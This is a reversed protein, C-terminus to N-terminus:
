KLSNNLEGDDLYDLMETYLMDIQKFLWEETIFLKAWSPLMPYFKTIILKEAQLRKEKGTVAKEKAWTSLRKEVNLMILAIQGKAYQRFYRFLFLVLFLALVIISYVINQDLVFM